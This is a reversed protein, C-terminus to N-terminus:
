KSQKNQRILKGISYSQNALRRFLEKHYLNLIKDYYEPEINQVHSIIGHLYPIDKHNLQGKSYCHLMARIKKRLHRGVSVGGAHTLIVGTVRQSRGKGIFRTKDENIRLTPSSTSKTLEEVIKKIIPLSEYGGCSFTLDDAYRTYIVSLEECHKEIKQDFDIMIINSFMPSSPAGISLEYGSNTKRFLYKSLLLKDINDLEVNKRSIFQFLDTQKISPFFNKFDMKLLYKAGAHAQANDKISLGATYATTSKSVAFQSLFVEIIGRQVSKVFATPQAILRDGGSRKKISFTKYAEPAINMNYIIDNLPINLYEALKQAIEM